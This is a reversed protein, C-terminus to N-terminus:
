VFKFLVGTRVGGRLGEITPLQFAVRLIQETGSPRATPRPGRKRSPHSFARQLMQSLGLRLAILIARVVGFLMQAGGEVVREPSLAVARPRRTRKPQGHSARANPRACARMAPPRRALRACSGGSL